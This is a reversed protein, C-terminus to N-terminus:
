EDYLYAAGTYHNNAPAGFVASSGSGYYCAVSYGFEGYNSHTIDQSGAHYGGQGWYRSTFLYGEGQGHSHFPAGVALCNGGKGDTAVAYGFLDGTGGNDPYVAGPTAWGNNSEYEWALGTKAPYGSPCQGSGTPCTANPAGVVALSGMASSVSFGFWDISNNPNTLTLSNIPGSWSNGAPSFVYAYGNGCPSCRGWGPPEPAGVVAIGLSGPGNSFSVSFGFESGSATLNGPTPLQNTLASWTGAVPQYMYAAGVGCGACQGHNYPQPEGVVATNSQVSVSFGFEFDATPNPSVLGATEPLDCLNCDWSAGNKVYVYAKGAAASNNGNNTVTHKPAGVVITQGETPSYPNNDISVSFGFWDGKKGDTSYLTIKRWPAVGQKEFVYAM